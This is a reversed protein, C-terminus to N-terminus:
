AARRASRSRCRAAPLLQLGADDGRAGPVHALADGPGGALEAQGARHDHGLVRRLRLELAISRSPPRSRSPATRASTASAPPSRSGPAAVAEEDVGHLVLAHHRAVPRDSELEESSAGPGRRRAEDGEAATPEAGPDRARDLRQPRSSPRRPRLGLGARRQRRGERGALRASRSEPRREHVACADPPAARLHPREHASTSSPANAIDSPRSRRLRHAHRARLARVHDGLASAREASAAASAPRPPPRFPPRCRRPRSCRRPSARWSGPRLPSGLRKGSRAAGAAARTSSSRPLLGCAPRRSSSVTASAAPSAARRPRSSPSCSRSRRHRQPRRPGHPRHSPRLGQGGRASRLQDRAHRRRPRARARRRGTAVLTEVKGSEFRLSRGSAHTRRCTATCRSRARRRAPRAEARAPRRRAQHPRLRPDLRRCQIHEVLTEVKTDATVSCSTTSSRAPSGRPRSSARSARRATRTPAPSSASTATSRPRSSCRRATARCGASSSTSRRSSAWTSCATPRTSSSRLAGQSLDVLRRTALDELRGPTAVLIHASKIATPRRAPDASRRVGAAVRCARPWQRTGRLGRDGPRRARADARARAGLPARDAPTTREVIPLAFALTKGSGTPSRVLVDLARSRTRCSSSRSAPLSSPDLSSALADVVPASM